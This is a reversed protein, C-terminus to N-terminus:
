YLQASISRVCKICHYFKLMQRFRKREIKNSIILCFDNLMIIGEMNKLLEADAESFRVGPLSMEVSLM